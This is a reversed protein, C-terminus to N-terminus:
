DTSLASLVHAFTFLLSSGRELNHTPSPLQRHQKLEHRKAKTEGEGNVRTQLPLPASHILRMRNSHQSHVRSPRSQPGFLLPAGATFTVLLIDHITRGPRLSSHPSISLYRYTHHSIPSYGGALCYNNYRYVEQGSELSSIGWRGM